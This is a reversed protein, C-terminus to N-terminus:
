TGKHAMEGAPRCELVGSAKYHDFARLADKLMDPTLSGHLVLAEGLRVGYAHQHKELLALQGEDLLGLQSVAETFLLGTHQQHLLVRRLDDATLLGALVAMLGNGLTLEKQLQVARQVQTETVWGAKVLFRGFLLPIHSM